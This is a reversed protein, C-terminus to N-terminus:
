YVVIDWFSILNWWYTSKSATVGVTGKTSRYVGSGVPKNTKWHWDVGALATSDKQPHWWALGQVDNTCGFTGSVGGVSNGMITPQYAWTSCGNTYIYNTSPNPEFMGYAGTFAPTFHLRARVESLVYGNKAAAFGAIEFAWYTKCGIANYPYCNDFPGGYLYYVNLSGGGQVSAATSPFYQQQQYLWNWKAPVYSVAWASPVALETTAVGIALGIALATTRKGITSRILSYIMGTEKPRGARHARMGGETAARTLAITTIKM